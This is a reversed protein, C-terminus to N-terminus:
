LEAMAGCRPWGDGLAARKRGFSTLFFALVQPDVAVDRRTYRPDLQLLGLQGLRFARDLMKGLNPYAPLLYTTVRKSAFKQGKDRAQIVKGHSLCCCIGM